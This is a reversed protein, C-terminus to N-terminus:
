GDTEAVGGDALLDAAEDLLQTPDDGEIALDVIAQM